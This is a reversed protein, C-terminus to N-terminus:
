AAIERKGTFDYAVAANMELYKEAYETHIEKAVVDIVSQFGALIVKQQNVPSYAARHKAYEIACAAYYIEQAKEPAM